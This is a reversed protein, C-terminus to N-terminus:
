RPLLIFSEPGYAGLTFESKGSDIDIPEGRKESRLNVPTATKYNMNKLLTIVTKGSVGAQEWVFLITGDGYPNAGFRNM